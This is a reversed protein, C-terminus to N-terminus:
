TSEGLPQITGLPQISTADIQGGLQDVLERVFPDSEIAAVAEAQRADKIRTRVQQPTQEGAAGIEFTVNLAAGFKDRLSAVLKDQYTRDLLHKHAEGVRLTVADGAQSVLECHDALMKAMGGLRLGAVVALWDWAARPAPERAVLPPASPAFPEPTAVSEPLATEAAPAASPVPMAPPPESAAARPTPEARAIPAARLPAPRDTAAARFSESGSRAEVRTSGYTGPMSNGSGPAFALMRLLTMCFGSFEDPAYPLDRRGNLAIQYYLQATEADLQAAVVQMREADDATEVAGPAHLLLALQTLLNGLDQLTADFAIGREALQRAQDLLADGNHAALADLLDFLYDRRVTGLMAEVAAVEVKGGGYAIAQDALSLADRMSG